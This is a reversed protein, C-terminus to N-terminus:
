DEANAALIRAANQEIQKAVDLLVGNRVDNSLLAIKRAAARAASAQARVSLKAMGARANSM